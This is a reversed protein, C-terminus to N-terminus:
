QYKIFNHNLLIFIGKFYETFSQNTLRRKFLNVNDKFNYQTLNTCTHM